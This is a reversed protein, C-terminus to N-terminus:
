LSREVLALIVDLSEFNEPVVDEADIEAGCADEIESLLVMIDVSKLLGGSIFDTRGEWDKGPRIDDLIGILTERTM